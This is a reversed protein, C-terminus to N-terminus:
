DLIDEFYFQRELSSLAEAIFLTSLQQQGTVSSIALMKWLFTTERGITLMCVWVVGTM